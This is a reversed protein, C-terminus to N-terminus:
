GPLGDGLRADPFAARYADSDGQADAAGNGDLDWRVADLQELVSLDILGDDDVDYDNAQASATGVPLALQDGNGPDNAQASATGVALLLWALMTPFASILPVTKMKM